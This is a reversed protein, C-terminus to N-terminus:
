TVGYTRPAEPGSAFKFPSTSEYAYYYSNTLNKGWVAVGFKGNPMTWSLTGNLLYYAPQELRNDPEWFFGSNRYISGTLAFKGVETPLTYTATINGTFKPARSLTKGAASQLCSTTGGAIAGGGVLGGVGSVPCTGGVLSQYAFPAKPFSTYEADLFSFAATVTLQNTPVFTLDLDAGRILAAAANLTLATGGTTLTSVQLNDYNYQFVSANFQLKRDLMESKVGIEYADITEPAIPPTLETTPVGGVIVVETPTGLNYGGSHFGVSYSAYAMINRTFHHDLVARYTLKSFDSAEAFPSPLIPAGAFTTKSGAFQFQDTTYRLGATLKTDPLIDYNADFFGSYSNLIQQTNLISSPPLQPIPLFHANVLANAKDHFYFFGAIWQLKEEKPSLIQFEQSVSQDKSWVNQELIPVPGGDNDINFPDEDSYRYATISAIRVPGFDHDIRGSVGGTHIILSDAPLESARYKGVYTVGGSGVTGPLPESNTGLDTMTRSFDASILASTSALPTWLLEGRLAYTSTKYISQGTNVDRGYGENNTSSMAGFNVAINDTLGTTAYISASPTNYSAYGVSADLSPTHSPRLTHISIVGGTANRGFLTGQPGKLVEIQGINNFELLGSVPSAFYVDDVYLAVPSSSGGAAQASGVGRIFVVSGNGTQRSFQLAPVASSLTETGTVGTRQIAAATVTTISIPVSQQNESRRQATVVIEEVASSGSSAPAAPAATQAWGTTAITMAAASIGLCLLHKRQIQM